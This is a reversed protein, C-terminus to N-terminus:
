VSAHGTNDSPKTGSCALTDQTTVLHQEAVRQREQLVLLFLDQRDFLAAVEVDDHAFQALLHNVDVRYRLHHSSEPRDAVEVCCFAFSLLQFSVIAYDHVIM